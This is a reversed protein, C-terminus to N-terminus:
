GNRQHTWGLSGLLRCRWARLSLLDNGAFIEVGKNGSSTSSAHGGTFAAIGTLAGAGASAYIYYLVNPTLGTAALSLGADPILYNIGNVTLLNGNFLM